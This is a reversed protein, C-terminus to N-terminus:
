RRRLLFFAGLGILLLPLLWDDAWGLWGLNGFLFYLGLVILLVAGMLRGGPHQQIRQVSGAITQGLNQVNEKAVESAPKGASAPTPMLIMLIVYLWVGIGSAPVLLLFALRVLIASVGLYAALGGCVGAIM